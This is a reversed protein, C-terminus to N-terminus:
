KQYTHFAYNIYTRALTGKGKQAGIRNQQIVPIDLKTLTSPAVDSQRLRM